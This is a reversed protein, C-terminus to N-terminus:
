FISGINRYITIKLVIVQGLIIHNRWRSEGRLCDSGNEKGIKKEGSIM